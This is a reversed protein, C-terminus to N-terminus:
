ARMRLLQELITQPPVGGSELLNILNLAALLRVEAQSQEREQRHNPWKGMLLQKLGWPKQLREAVEEESMGLHASILKMTDTSFERTSKYAAKALRYRVELNSPLKKWDAFYRCATPLSIDVLPAVQAPRLGQDFADFARRRASRGYEDLKIPYKRSKRRLKVLPFSLM